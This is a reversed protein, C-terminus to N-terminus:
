KLNELWQIVSNDKVKFSVRHSNTLNDGIILEFEAEEVYYIVGILKTIYSIIAIVEEPITSFSAIGEIFKIKNIKRSALMNKTKNRAEWKKFGFTEIWEYKQRVNLEM